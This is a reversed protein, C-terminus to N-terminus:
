DNKYRYDINCAGEISVMCPGVPHSPKCKGGFLPCEDPPILGRLVEGCRCGPPEKFERNKLDVLMDEYKKEADYDEFKKKIVMKSDEIDPFGRWRAGERDFVEDLVKLAKENGEYTVCRKYENEVEGRGELVQKAIMWVGMMVDIPEFGAIVQPIGYRRSIGEYPKVGIIVSVHGPDIIGDLAVEGMGLISTIAPPIYRHCNVVSFNEPISRLLVSATSPATTEFGVAMFVVEKKEALEVAENIGYVIRVDGGKAKISQLSQEVGPVRVMDGFTAITIGKEALRIGIEIENPTTVCVPCGPGQIIKVGCKRFISGLGFKVITDQHTGCVHMIQLNLNMEKLNKAILQSLEKDRLHFM